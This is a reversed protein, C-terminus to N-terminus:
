FANGLEMLAPMMCILIIAVFMLMLPLMLKSSAAEGMQRAVNKRMDWCETGLRKLEFLMQGGGLKVSQMLIGVFNTIEKIKCRESFDTYAQQESMGAKIDNLTISLERYLPTEGGRERVIREIAQRTSLGANVLLVLNTVFDPFDRKMSMVKKKYQDDLIKDALFFLGIGSGPVIAYWESGAAGGLFGLLGSLVLGLFLYFFKAGWHIKMYFAAYRSGNLMVVKQHLWEFYRGTGKIGLKDVMWLAGALFPKYFHQKKDLPELFERYNSQQWLHVAAYFIGAGVAMLLCFTQM